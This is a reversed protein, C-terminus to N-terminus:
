AEGQMLDHFFLLLHDSKELENKRYLHQAVQELTGKELSQEQLAQQLSSRLLPFDEQFSRHARFNLLQQYYDQDKQYSPAHLLVSPKKLLFQLFFEMQFIKHVDGTVIQFNMPVKKQKRDDIFKEVLDQRYEVVMIQSQGQHQRRHFAVMQEIHYAFGLGLVLACPSKALELQHKEVFQDAEKIPDYISHLYIQDVVPVLHGTKSLRFDISM